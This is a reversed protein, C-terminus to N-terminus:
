WWSLLTAYHVGKSLPSFLVDPVDDKHFATDQVLNNESKSRVSLLFKPVPELGLTDEKEDILNSSKRTIGFIFKM